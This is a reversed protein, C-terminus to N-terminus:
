PAGRPAYAPPTRMVPTTDTRRTVPTLGLSPDSCEVRPEPRPQPLGTENARVRDRAKPPRAAARPPRARDELLAEV